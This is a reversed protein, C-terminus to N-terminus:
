ARPPDSISIDASPDRGIVMEDKEIFYRHGAPTGRILILCAPSEKAKQLERNITEQDLGIMATKDSNENAM